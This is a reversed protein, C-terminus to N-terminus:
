ALKKADIYQAILEIFDKINFPKAIYDTCGAEISKERDGDMAYSTQAIVPVGPRIKRIVPTAEFGSMVPMRVDMLILDIQQDKKCEEVAEQGNKAWILTVGTRKLATKILLFNTTVDEAVLIVKDKWNFEMPVNIKHHRKVISRGDKRIPITFCFVSGGAPESEVWIDGGFLNVFAKSIALGLGTGEHKPRHDITAQMFREFIYQQQDYDLGVGTDKVYFVLYEEHVTYGVEVYGKYTFKCANGVLNILVQKLRTRDSLIIDQGKDLGYMSRLEFRRGSVYNDKLLLENVEDLLENVSFENSSLSLMGAEVKSIDIIDNILALLHNGNKNIVEIFEKLEERDETELLLQSFGLIGNMPTRIEHSMNALFASKLKDSQEAREKAENLQSTRERVKRELTRNAEEVEAKRGDLQKNLFFDRRAYYEIYYAAFMGILNASIFFFNNNVIILANTDSYFIAGINYIILILWGGLTAMLFRLKIFFYGATFVLLIGGYYAYNDPVLVLMLAIGAGGVVFSIFVLLQWVGRFFKFFSLVLVLSLLPVVVMFRVIFFVEQYMPVVMSDLLGFVGYLAALLFFSVRFQKLSDRFYKLLFENERGDRFALTIPNLNIRRTGAVEKTIDPSSIPTSQKM